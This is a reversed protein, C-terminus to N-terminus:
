AVDSTEFIADETDQKFPQSAVWTNWGLRSPVDTTGGLRCAPVEDRRLILQVDFDFEFGVYTRILQTVASLRDGAPTLAWFEKYTLPGLRLRFSNEVGWVRRGVVVSASLQNNPDSRPGPHGLRSQDGPDLYLWRGVFQIIEAPVSFYEAIVCELSIANRPSHAFHGGYHILTHDHIKQRDCLQDTGMGVLCLLCRTVLDDGGGSRQLREFSVPVRYKSWARYFFSIARHNFLDLFDRLAFDKSRVRDIVAQTYHRPLVGSPGFLGVFAVVMEPPTDDRTSPRFSYVEGAPFSHSPLSRFRVTERATPGDRGINRRAHEANADASLELLRVAQYFNFRFPEKRLLEQVSNAKGESKKLM